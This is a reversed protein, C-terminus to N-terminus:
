RKKLLYKVDIKDQDRGLSTKNIILEKKGIFYTNQEGYRSKVRHKFVAATNVGDLCTLIHIQVPAIGIQFVNGSKSFYDPSIDATNAHFDKIANYVRSSNDIDPKVLIDIDGTYRPRGYYSVAYAGVICYVARRKNLCRIFDGFDKEIEM